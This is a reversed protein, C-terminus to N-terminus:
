KNRVYMQCMYKGYDSVKAGDVGIAANKLICVPELKTSHIVTGLFIKMKRNGTILKQKNLCVPWRTVYLLYSCNDDVALVLTMM